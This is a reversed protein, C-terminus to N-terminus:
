RQAALLSLADSFSAQKVGYTKEIRNCDLVSWAPRAAKAGYEETSVPQVRCQKRGLSALIETAFQAWSMASDDCLNFIGWHPEGSTVRQAIKLVAEAVNPAFTPCGIQDDVVRLLEHTQSLRDMSAYFNANNGGYLWSTRIIIHKAWNEAVAKEGEFKTKGYVSAPATPDTELLPRSVNGAYVYDTSIHILPIDAAACAAAIEGPAIANIRTAAGINDEAGDVNTYAATNIVIDPKNEGALVAALVPGTTEPDALDIQPRGIASCEIKSKAALTIIAQALQGQKGLVLVRMPTM